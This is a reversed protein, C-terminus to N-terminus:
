RGHYKGHKKDEKKKMLWEAFAYVGDDLSFLYKRMQTVLPSEYGETHVNRLIDAFVAKHFGCRALDLLEASVYDTNVESHYFECIYFDAEFGYDRLFARMNDYTAEAGLCDICFGFYVDDDFHHAGCNPCQMTEEYGGGCVPCATHKEGHEETIHVEEGNEFLHGCEFCKYLKM